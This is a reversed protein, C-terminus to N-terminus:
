AAWLTSGATPGSSQVHGSEILHRLTAMVEAEGAASDQVAAVLDFLTLANKRASEHAHDSGPQTM